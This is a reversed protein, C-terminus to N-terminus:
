VTAGALGDQNGGGPVVACNTRVIYILKEDARRTLGGGIEVYDTRSLKTYLHSTNQQTEVLVTVVQSQQPVLLMDGNRMEVKPAPSGAFGANDLNFVLRGVAQTNRLKDLLVRGTSLTESSGSDVSQLPLTVVDAERRSALMEIQEREREKLSERLFIAFEVLADETVGGAREFVEGMTEGPRVRYEDPFRVEGELTVTWRSIWDPLRDIKLYDHERLTLNAANDGQLIADLDVKLTKTETRDVSRDGLNIGALSALGGYQAALSSLGRARDPDDPALLAEARYTDPILLAVIVLIVASTMTIAVITWNRSWLLHILSRLDVVDDDPARAPNQRTKAM